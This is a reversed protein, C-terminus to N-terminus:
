YMKNILLTFGATETFLIYTNALQRGNLTENNGMDINGYLQVGNDSSSSSQGYKKIEEYSLQTENAVGDKGNSFIISAYLDSFTPDASLNWDVDANSDYIGAKSKNTRKLEEKAGAVPNPTTAETEDYEVTKASVRMVSNDLLFPQVTSLGIFLSFLLLFSLGLKKRKNKIFQM